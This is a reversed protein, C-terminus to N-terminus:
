KESAKRLIAIQKELSEIYKMACGASRQDDYIGNAPINNFINGLEVWWWDADKRFYDPSDISVYEDEIGDALELANMENSEWSKIDEWVEPRNEKLWYVVSKLAEIEAQKGHIEQVANVLATTAQVWEANVKDIEARANAAQQGEHKWDEHKALIEKKLFEIEAQQENLKNYAERCIRGIEFHDSTSWQHVWWEADEPVNKLRDEIPINCVFDNPNYNLKESM